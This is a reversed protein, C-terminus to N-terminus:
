VPEACLITNQNASLFKNGFDTTSDGNDNQTGFQDAVDHKWFGQSGKALIPVPFPEPNQLKWVYRSDSYDGYLYEEYWYDFNELDAGKETLWDESRQTSVLNVTGLIKGMPLNDAHLRHEQLRRRFPDQQCLNRCWKPMVATAHIGVTGRHLTNWGRTEFTKLGLMVLSAYPQYLSIVKMTLM